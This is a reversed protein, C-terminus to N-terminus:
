SISGIRLNHLFHLTKFIARLAKKAVVNEEFCVFAGFLSSDKLQFAKIDQKIYGELTNPENM